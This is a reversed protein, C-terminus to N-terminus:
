NIGIGDEGSKQDKEGPRSLKRFQLFICEPELSVTRLSNLKDDFRNTTPSISPDLIAPSDKVNRGLLNKIKEKTDEWFSVKLKLSTKATFRSVDGPRRELIVATRFYRPIESKQTEKEFLEWQVATLWDPDHPPTYKIAEDIYTLKYELAPFIPENHVNECWRTINPNKERWRKDFFYQFGRSIIGAAFLDALSIQEGVLYTNTHLHDEVVGILKLAAKSSEEVVKENYLHTKILPIWWRRLSTMLDLNFFTMWQLILAYDKQTKGLLTTEKQSTLYIAIAICETLVYGDSGVFTPIKGQKNLKRYEDSVGRAPDTEVIKVDLNNAKVIAYIATSRPNGPYTYVTGFFTM